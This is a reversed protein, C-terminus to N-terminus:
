PGLYIKFLRSNFLVRKLVGLPLRLWKVREFSECISLACYYVSARKARDSNYFYKTVFKSRLKVNFNTVKEESFCDHLAQAFSVESAHALRNQAVARHTLDLYFQTNFQRKAELCFVTDSWYHKFGDEGFRMEHEVFLTAPFVSIRGFVADVTVLNAKGRNLPGSATRGLERQSWTVHGANAIRRSGEATYCEFGFAANKFPHNLKTQRLREIVSSTILGDANILFVLDDSKMESM